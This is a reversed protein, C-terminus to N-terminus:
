NNIALDELQSIIISGSIEILLGTEKDMFYYGDSDRESRVKGTSVWSRTVTGDCNLIEVKYESKRGKMRAKKADSCSFIFFLTLLIILLKKM